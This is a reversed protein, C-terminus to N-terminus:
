KDCGSTDWKFNPYGCVHCNTTSQPFAIQRGCRDCFHGKEIVKSAKHPQWQRELETRWLRKTPYEKEPEYPVCAPCPLTDDCIWATKTHPKGHSCDNLKFLCCKAKPCIMLQEKVEPQAFQKIHEVQLRNSIDNLVDWDIHGKPSLAELMADAGAEFDEIKEIDFKYPKDGYLKKLHKRTYPNDWGEPRWKTTM